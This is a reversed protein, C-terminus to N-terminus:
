GIYTGYRVFEEDEKLRELDENRLCIGVVIEGDLSRPLFYVLGERAGDTFQPRRVAVPLGFGFDLNCCNEKAWSSLRVDLEPHNMPVTNASPAVTGHTISTALERVNHQLSEPDLAARLEASLSGLTRSIVKNLPSTHLTATTLFGPYTSPIDLHRRADVNRSLVTASASASTENSYRPLRSRSMSQWVFATLVDDTSVFECAGSTPLTSTASSKLSALATANFSFYAWTFNSTSSQTQKPKVQDKQENSQAPSRDPDPIGPNDLLPVIDRRDMNGTSLEIDTFPENRCAKALLYMMQGQGAMDMSGHQGNLTLLLGGGKVFSAQIIFVLLGESNPEVTKCPAFTSEDIMSFPFNANRLIDWPPVLDDETYDKLVFHSKDSSSPKIKFTDNENVIEGAIWPFSESLRNFGNTLIEIINSQSYSDPLRFCFTVQTYLKNIRPRQAFIDLHFDTLDSAISNHM